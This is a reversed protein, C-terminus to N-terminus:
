PKKSNRVYQSWSLMVLPVFVGVLFTLVWRCSASNCEDAIIWTSIGALLAHTLYMFQALTGSLANIVPRPLNISALPIGLTDKFSPDLEVIYKDVVNFSDHLKDSRRTRAVIRAFTLFGYAQVVFLSILIIAYWHDSFLKTEFLAGFLAFMATVLGLFFKMRQESEREQYDADHLFTDRYHLLIQVISRKSLKQAM